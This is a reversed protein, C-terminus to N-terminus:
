VLEARKYSSVLLFPMITLAPAKSHPSYPTPLRKRLNADQVGWSQDISAIYLVIFEVLPSNHCLDLVVDVGDSSDEDEGITGHRADSDTSIICKRSQGGDEGLVQGPVDGEHEGIDQAGEMPVEGSISEWLNEVAGRSEEEIVGNGELPFVELKLIAWIRRTLHCPKPFLHLGALLGSQFHEHINKVPQIPKISRLALINHGVDSVGENPLRLLEQSLDHFPTGPLDPPDLDPPLIVLPRSPADAPRAPTGCVVGEPTVTCPANGEKGGWFFLESLNKDTLLSM